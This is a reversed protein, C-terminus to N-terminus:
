KRKNLKLLDNIILFGLSLYVILRILPELITWFTQPDDRDSVYTLPSSSSVLYGYPDFEIPDNAFVSYLPSTSSFTYSIIPFSSTAITSNFIDYLRFAYGWPPYQSLLLMDEQFVELGPYFVGLLCNPLDFSGFPNCNSTINYTTSAFLGDLRNQLEIQSNVYPSTSGVFFYTSTAVIIDDCATFLWFGSLNCLYFQVSYKGSSYYQSPSTTSYGGPLAVPWDSGNKSLYFPSSSTSTIKSIQFIYRTNTAIYDEASLFYEITVSNTGTAVTIGNQPTVSIIRSSRSGFTQGFISTWDFTDPTYSTGANAGAFVTVWELVNTLDVTVNPWTGTFHACPSINCAFTIGHTSSTPQPPVYGQYNANTGGTYDTLGVGGDTGDGTLYTTLYARNTTIGINAGFNYSTSALVVSSFSLVGVMILTAIALFKRM